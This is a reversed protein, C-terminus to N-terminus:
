GLIFIEKNLDAPINSIKDKTFYVKKLKKLSLLVKPFETIDTDRLDLFDLNQLNEFEDSFSAINSNRLDLEKLNTLKCFQKPFIRIKNFRLSLFELKPLDLYDSNTAFVYNCKDLYLERLNKLKYIVKPFYPMLHESTQDGFKIIGLIYFANEQLDLIELNQLNELEDPLDHIGNFVFHSGICDCLKLRKLNKRKGLSAFASPLWGPEQMEDTEYEDGYVGFGYEKMINEVIILAALVMFDTSIKKLSWTLTRATVQPGNPGDVEEFSHKMADAYDDKSFGCRRLFMRAKFEDDKAKDMAWLEELVFQYAVEENPIKNIVAGVMRGIIDNLRLGGYHRALENQMIDTIPVYDLIQSVIKLDRWEMYNDEGQKIYEDVFRPCSEAFASEIANELINM